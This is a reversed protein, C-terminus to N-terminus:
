PLRHLRLRDRDEAILEEPDMGHHRQRDEADMAVSM